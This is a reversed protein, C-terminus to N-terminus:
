SCDGAKTWADAWYPTAGPEYAAQACWGSYPFPKCEYASGNNQVRDGGSYTKITWQPYSTCTLAQQARGLSEKSGGGGSCALVLALLVLIPANWTQRLMNLRWFFLVVGIDAALICPGSTLERGM